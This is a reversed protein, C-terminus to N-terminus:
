EVQTIVWLLSVAPFRDVLYDFSIAWSPSKRVLPAVEWSPRMQSPYFYSLFTTTANVLPWPCRQTFHGENGVGMTLIEYQGLLPFGSIPGCFLRWFRTFHGSEHSKRPRLKKKGMEMPLQQWSAASDAASGLVKHCRNGAYFDCRNEYLHALFYIFFM